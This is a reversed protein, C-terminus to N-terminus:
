KDKEVLEKFIKGGSLTMVEMELRM